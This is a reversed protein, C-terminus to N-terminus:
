PLLSQYVSWTKEIAREWSFARARDRGKSILQDRLAADESLRRLAVALEDQKFPDVLLAADGAAEPLASCNSTVVPVGHAMAELVPIGFGEDLSPFAFISARAYLAELEGAPVYGMLEIDSRRASAEVAQLEAAAEYGDTAGALVLRWGPPMTEFAKVLRAINKRKQIAGVFLVIQERQDCQERDAHAATNADAPMRVGHPIVHVREPEVGLLGTVQAATFQSVAIIADSREAARRAQESFRARFEATSYEGTLAFLDHFTCVTRRSSKDVPAADVRQNLAHFLDAQPAGRLWRRSANAPLTDGLSKWLRHPRYCFLFRQEPHAKALGFLIERSYVGVGSLNRGLSYTADLAIRL